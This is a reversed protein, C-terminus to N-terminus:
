KLTKYMNLLRNIGDVDLLYEVISKPIYKEISNHQNIEKVVSSLHLTIEPNVTFVKRSLIKEFAENRIIDFRVEENEVSPFVLDYEEMPYNKNFSSYNYEPRPAVEISIKNTLHYEHLVAQMMDVREEVTFVNRKKIHNLECLDYFERFISVEKDRKELSNDLILIKLNDWDDLISIFTSLHGFTLINYRGFTVAKRMGEM